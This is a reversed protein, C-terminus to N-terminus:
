LLPVFRLIQAQAVCTLPLVLLQELVCRLLPLRLQLVCFEHVPPFGLWSQLLASLFQLLLLLVPSRPPNGSLHIIRLLEEQPWYNGQPLGNLKIEWDTM